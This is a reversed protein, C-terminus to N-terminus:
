WPRRRRDRLVIATATVLLLAAVAGAVLYDATRKERHRAPDAVTLAAPIASAHHPREAPDPTPTEIATAGDTLARVPDVVGWGLLADHGPSIRQATQEIQAIVEAATWTPHEARILAAVGAVYPAAFSTGNDLCQGGGPVTSLIDVGPAAVGVFDGAQSFPARENNRDSAGVALVGPYGGPYTTRFVGDSGGNGASAVIVADAAVAAAVAAALGPTGRPTDQSINIVGAGEAVAKRLARALGDVTGTGDEGAQRLSILTAEPALGVFGTAPSPRAAIIGAVETGHGVPDTTGRGGPATLDLSRSVDVATALQPNRTDIGSDIVAVTVGKGRTNQWLRNLLVRQLSWPTQPVDPAPFTCEGDGDLVPATHAAPAATLAATGPCGTVVAAIVALATAVPARRVRPCGEVALGPM